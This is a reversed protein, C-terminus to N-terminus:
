QESSGSEQSNKKRCCRKLKGKRYLCVFVIAMILLFGGISCMVAVFELITLGCCNDVDNTTDYHKESSKHFIDKTVM